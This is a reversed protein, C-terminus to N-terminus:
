NTVKELIEELLVTHNDVNIKQEDARDKLYALDRRMEAIGIDRSHGAAANADVKQALVKMETKTNEVNGSLKGYGMVAGLLVIAPGIILSALKITSGNKTAM